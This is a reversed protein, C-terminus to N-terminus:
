WSPSNTKAPKGYARSGARSPNAIQLLSVTRALAPQMGVHPRICHHPQDAGQFYDLRDVGIALKKAM